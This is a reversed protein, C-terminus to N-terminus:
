LVMNLTTRRRTTPVPAGNTQPQYYAYPTSKESTEGTNAQSQSGFNFDRRNHTEAKGHYKLPQQPQSAYSPISNGWSNQTFIDSKLTSARLNSLIECAVFQVSYYADALAKTAAIVDFSGDQELAIGDLDRAGETRKRLKLNRRSSRITYSLDEIKELIQEFKYISDKLNEKSIGSYITTLEWLAQHVATGSQSLTSGPQQIIATHGFSL